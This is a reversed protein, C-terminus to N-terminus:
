WGGSTGRLDYNDDGTTREGMWVEKRREEM